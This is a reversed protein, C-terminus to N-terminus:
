KRGLVPVDAPAGWGFITMTELVYWAGNSPRYVAPELQGDGNYDGAVPIDGPAGWWVTQPTEYNMLSFLGYWWGTSPRYIGVDTKGDGDFDAPVPIDGDMGWTFSMIETESGTSFISWHGTAPTFVALEAHGDGDYDGPVPLDGPAGWTFTRTETYGSASMLGSWLATTPTFVGPDVIGDGDYDAPVPIDGAAGLTFTRGDELLWQGTSPRYVAREQQGAGQWDGPVPVDGDQGLAADVWERYGSTSKLTYWHGDTPRFVTLDAAGDGDFDGATKLVPGAPLQAPQGIPVDGTQGWVLSGLYTMSVPDYAYWNGDAPRFVTLEIRGDGDVDLVLPIDAPAGWPLYPGDAIYWWGTSPRYVAIQAHGVGTYDGPVPVDGWVGWQLTAGNMVYWTGTTPRFVAIETAGDGNYDAPAPIDGRQGWHIPGGQSQINWDGSSPHFVAIEARGDGNYDGPVPVDGPQGFAVTPQGEIVWEMTSPRFVAREAKGDGNYDAAVPIDGAQGATLPGAQGHIWWQGTEPRFIAFDSHGSGGFDFPAATGGFGIVFTATLRDATTGDGLKGSDNAGWCLLDGGITRACVHDGGAGVAVAAVGSALGSSPTPTWRQTTTGDGIQGRTNRGWCLVGGEATLACTEYGGASIAAVDGALGSVATPTVRRATTGDGLQGYSNDGWCVASGTTTVACSHSMGGAIAVLGSGLGTVPVATWRDTTTGDGLQGSSNGGWCQAGGGTTLVCTHYAGAGITAVAGAMGPVAIPTARSTTTGDGLQGWNNYGWCVLAGATKLACTHDYGAAIEVVDSGLGVVPTPTLRASTTGDGLQNRDNRGWCLVAGATTLGCTHRGGATIAAVGSGLGVVPTPRSQATTTGDGLQGQPNYGWCLVAGGVTLVCTHDDGAVVAATDNLDVEFYLFGSQLTGSLTTPNTVVLDVAGAAHPPAAATIRTADVVIVNTAVAGGFTVTAGSAFGAGTITVGTGGTTVGRVPAISSITPGTAYTFPLLQSSDNLHGNVSVAGAAHAPSVATITNADVVVVGTAAVGDFDVTVGTQFGFGKITVPTGGQTAGVNPSVTMFQFRSPDGLWFAPALSGAGGDPNGVTVAWAGPTWAAGGYQTATLHAQLTTSNVFTTTLPSGFVLYGSGVWVWAGSVFNAGRVTIDFDGAMPGYSPSVSTVTPPPDVTYGGALTATQNDGNRVTVDHPGAPLDYGNIEVQVTTGDIFTVERGQEKYVVGGVNVTVPYRFRTGTVTVTTSGASSGHAPAVSTVTPPLWTGTGGDTTHLIVGYDAGVWANSADAAALAFIGSLTGAPQIDWAAGGNATHHIASYEGGSGSWSGSVWVVSANAAALVGFEEGLEDGRAEHELRWTAGGDTTAFLYHGDLVWATNADFAVVDKFGFGGPYLASSPPTVTTWTTGGDSTKLILSPAGVAWAVSASPAAIATPYAGAQSWEMTWSTSSASTRHYIVGKNGSNWYGVFWVHDADPAALDYVPGPTLFVGDAAWTAGGDTTKRVIGSYIGGPSWAGWGATWGVSSSVMQIRPSSGFDTQCANTWTTGADSSRLVCGGGTVDISGVLWIHSADVASVGSWYISSVDFSPAQIQWGGGQGRAPASVALALGALMVLIILSPTRGGSSSGIM